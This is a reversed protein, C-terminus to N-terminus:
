YRPDYMQSQIHGLLDAPRKHDSLGRAYAVEAVAAAIQASV